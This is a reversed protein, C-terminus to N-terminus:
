STPSPSDFCFTAHALHRIKLPKSRGPYHEEKRFRRRDCSVELPHRVVNLCSELFVSINPSVKFSLVAGPEVVAKDKVVVNDCVVASTVVAGNGIKVDNWIYSGQIRVNAGIQCNSGIVSNQIV